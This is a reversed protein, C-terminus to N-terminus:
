WLVYAHVYLFLSADLSSSCSLTIILFSKLTGMDIEDNIRSQQFLSQYTYPLKALVSKELHTQLDTCCRYGIVVDVGVFWLFVFKVLSVAVARM